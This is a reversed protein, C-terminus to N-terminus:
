PHHWHTETMGSSPEPIWAKEELGLAHIGAGLAPIVASYTAVAHTVSASYTSAGLM